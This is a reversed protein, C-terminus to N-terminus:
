EHVDLERGVRTGLMIRLSILLSTSPATRITIYVNQSRFPNASQAQRTVFRTTGSPVNTEAPVVGEHGVVVQRGSGHPQGEQVDSRVRWSANLRAEIEASSLWQGRVMVGARKQLNALNALPIQKSCSSTQGRAKRLQASGTRPRLTSALKTHQRASSRSPVCGSELMYPIERHISFGPVSFSRPRTQASSFGFEASASARWRAAQSQLRHNSAKRHFQPSALRKRYGEFVAKWRPRHIYRLEAYSRLTELPPVGPDIGVAGDDAGGM